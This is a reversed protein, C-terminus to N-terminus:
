GFLAIVLGMLTLNVIDSGVEIIWVRFGNGAFLRHSLSSAAALGFGLLAGVLAGQLPGFSSVGASALEIVIAVTTAQAFAALFTSGFVIAMNGGSGAPDTEGKGMLKWWIPFFTKPGFWIAGAVFAVFTAALVALWNLESFIVVTGKLIKWKRGM